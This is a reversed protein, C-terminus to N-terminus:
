SATRKALKNAKKEVRAEFRRLEAPQGPHRKGSRNKGVREGCNRVKRKTPTKAVQPPFLVFTFPTADSLSGKVQPSSIPIVDTFPCLDSRLTQLSFFAHVFRAHSFCVPPEPLAGTDLNGQPEQPTLQVTIATQCDQDATALTADQMQQVFSAVNKLAEASMNVVNVYHPKETAPKVISVDLGTGPYLALRSLDFPSPNNVNDM